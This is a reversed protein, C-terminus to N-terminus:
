NGYFLTRSDGSGEVIIRIASDPIIDAVREPWELLILNSPDSLIERWGLAQLEHANELRCADIHILRKYSRERLEYIKELVFTPSTVTEEVGLAKAVGQVFTTKGAGLDGSLTVVTAVSQPKLTAVFRAAEGQMAELGIIEM